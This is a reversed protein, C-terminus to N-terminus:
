ILPSRSDEMETDNPPKIRVIWKLQDEFKSNSSCAFESFVFSMKILMVKSAFRKNKKETFTLSGIIMWKDLSTWKCTLVPIQKATLLIRVAEFASDYFKLYKSSSRVFPIESHFLNTAKGGGWLNVSNTFHQLYLNKFKAYTRLYRRKANYKIMEMTDTSERLQLHSYANTIKQENM